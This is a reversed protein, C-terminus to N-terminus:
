PSGPRGSWLSSTPESSVCSVLFGRLRMARLWGTFARQDLGGAPRAGSRSSPPGAAPTPDAARHFYSAPSRLETCAARRSETRTGRMRSPPATACRIRVGSAGPGSWPLEGTRTPLTGRDNRGIQPPTIRATTTRTGPPRGPTKLEESHACEAPRVPAQSRPAGGRAPSRGDAAQEVVCSGPPDPLSRSLPLRRTRIGM